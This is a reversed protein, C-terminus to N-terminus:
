QVVINGGAGVNADWPTITVQSITLEKGQITVDYLICNGARWHLTGQEDGPLSLTRDTGNVTLTLQALGDQYLIAPYALFAIYIGSQNSAQTTYSLTRTYTVSTSGKTFDNDPISVIGSCLIGSNNQDKVEIKTLNATGGYTDGKILRVGVMAMCHRLTISTRISTTSVDTGAGVLYDTEEPAIFIPKGGLTQNSSNVTGLALSSQYDPTLTTFSTNIFPSTLGSPHVATVKGTQSIELGTTPNWTNGNRIFTLKTGNVGYNREGSIYNKVVVDLKSADPLSTGNVVVKSQIAEVSVEIALKNADPAPLSESDGCGQLLFFLNLAVVNYKNM